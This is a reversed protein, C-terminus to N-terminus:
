LLFFGMALLLVACGIVTYKMLGTFNSWLAYADKVAQPDVEVPTHNHSM